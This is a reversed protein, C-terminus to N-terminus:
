TQLGHRKPAMPEVLLWYEVNSRSGRVPCEVISNTSVGVQRLDDVITSVVDALAESRVVGKSLRDPSTEYQPKLLSLVVGGPSLLGLAKPLILHQPTWAVDITVLDVPEPLVVHLANQREMVVVSANNRLGWALTGYSTDVAFVKKAGHKLLCDVFGGINSGLDAM